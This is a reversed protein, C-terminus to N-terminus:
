DNTKQKTIICNLLIVDKLSGKLVGKVTVAQGLVLNELIVTQGKQMDCIVTKNISEKGKLVVTERNNLYNVEEVFGEVSVISEKFDSTNFSLEEILKEVNFQKVPKQDNVMQDSHDKCSNLGLIVTISGLLILEKSLALRKRINTIPKQM